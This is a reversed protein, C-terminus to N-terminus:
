FGNAKMAAPMAKAILVEFFKGIDEMVEGATVKTGGPSSPSKNDAASEQCAAIAAPLAAIIEGVPIVVGRVTATTKSAAKVKKTAM